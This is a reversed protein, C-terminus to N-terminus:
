GGYKALWEAQWAEMPKGTVEELTRGDLSRSAEESSEGPPFSIGGIPKGGSLFVSVNIEGAGLPHGTVVYREIEVTQGVYPTPDVEQLAWDKMYPMSALLRGNLVYRVVGGKHSVVTYGKSALFESAEPSGEDSGGSCGTVLALLMLLPVIYKM